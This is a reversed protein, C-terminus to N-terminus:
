CANGQKFTKRTERCRYAKHGPKGCIFCKVEGPKKQSQTDIDSSSQVKPKVQAESQSQDKSCNSILQGHALVYGESLEVIEKLTLLFRERLFVQLPKSCVEIFQKILLLDVLSEYTEKHNSLEVWRNLLNKLRNM